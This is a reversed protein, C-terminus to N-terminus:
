PPRPPPPTPLCPLRCLASATRNSLPSQGFVESIPKTHLRDPAGVPIPPLDSADGLIQPVLEGRAAAGDLWPDALQDLFVFSSVSRSRVRSSDPRHRLEHREIRALRLRM